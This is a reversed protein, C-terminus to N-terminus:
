RPLGQAIAADAARRGADLAEDLRDFEFMGIADVAPSILLDAARRNQESRQWGGLVMARSLTSVIGPGAAERGRGRQLARDPMPFQRMVDVGIVPGEDMDAMVDVPFNDLIGGDVLLRGDLQIPPAVGPIAMSAALADRVLGDRHVVLDGTALDASVAFMSLSLEEIRTDGFVRLLMERVRKGKTLGERPVGFDNWPHREVFEERCIDIIETPSRRMAYLAAAFAGASCGGVRDIPAGAEVLREIVGAHALGRAGGGSFVIGLSHGIARRAARDAAADFGSGEPVHHHSRPRLHELTPTMRQASPTSGIFVADVRENDARLLEMAWHPPRGGRVVALVRDASRACFSAWAPDLAPAPAVLIVWPHETEVKDLHDAWARHSAAHEDEEGSASAGDLAAPGAAEARELAAADIKPPGALVAVSGFAGLTAQLREVLRVIPLGDGLPVVAITDPEPLPAAVKDSQQLQTAVVRAVVVGLEPERDLVRAFSEAPVLILQSDRLARIAASRRAGTLLSLEGVWSGRGLVSIVPSAGGTATGGVAERPEGEGTRWGEDIVQLRGSWVLALADAADGQHFLFEGAPLHVWRSATALERRAHEPLGHFLPVQAIFRATEEPDPPALALDLDLDLDAAVDEVVEGSPEGVDGGAAGIDAAAEGVHDRGIDERADEGADGGADEINGGIDIV